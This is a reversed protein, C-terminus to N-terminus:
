PSDSRIKLGYCTCTGLRTNHDLRDVIIRVANLVEGHRQLDNLRSQIHSKVQFVKMAWDLKASCEAIREQIDASTLVAKTFASLSRFNADARIVRLEAAIGSLDRALRDVSTKLTDQPLEEESKGQLSTLIVIMLSYTREQLDKSQSSNSSVSEAVTIVQLAASIAPGLWPVHILASIAQLTNLFIKTGDLLYSGVSKLKGKGMQTPQDVDAGSDLGLTKWVNANRSGSVHEPGLSESIYGDHSSEVIFKPGVREGPELRLPGENRNHVQAVRLLDRASARTDARGPRTGYCLINGM